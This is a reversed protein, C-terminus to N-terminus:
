FGNKLLSLSPTPWHQVFECFKFVSLLGRDLTHILILTSVSTIRNCFEDM